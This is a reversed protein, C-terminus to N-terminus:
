YKINVKTVLLVNLNAKLNCGTQKAMWKLKWIVVKFNDTESHNQVHMEFSYDFKGNDNSM